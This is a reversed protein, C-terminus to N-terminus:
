CAKFTCLCFSWERVIWALFSFAEIAHTENCVQNLIVNGFDCNAFAVSTQDATQAATALWRVWLVATSCLLHRARARQAQFSIARLTLVYLALQARRRGHVHVRGHPPLRDRDQVYFRQAIRGLSMSMACAVESASRYECSPSPSWRSRASPSAWRRSRTTSRMTSKRSRRSTRRSRSCSSAVAM